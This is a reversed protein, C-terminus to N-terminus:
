GRRYLGHQRIYDAVDAHLMQSVEIGAALHRRIQTSSIDISPTEVVHTRLKEVRESGWLPVYEDFTPVDFGGRYMVSVNCTDILEDIKHWYVLDKVSDAGLLWYISTDLGYSAQFQRVTDLTYSPAARRLECDSVAFAGDTRIALEIMRLRDHDDAQPFSVKLPSCKAPIFVVTEAEIQRGAVHAVGTHGLHIPDFSGGFLAIKRQAM